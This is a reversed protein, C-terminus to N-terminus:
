PYLKQSALQKLNEPWCWKLNHPPNLPHFPPPHIGPPERRSKARTELQQLGPAMNWSSKFARLSERKQSATPPPSPHPPTPSSSPPLSPPPPSFSPWDPISHDVIVSGSQFWKFTISDISSASRAPYYTMHFHGCLFPTCQWGNWRSRKFIVSCHGNCKGTSYVPSYIAPQDMAKM